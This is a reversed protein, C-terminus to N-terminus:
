GRQLAPVCRSAIRNQAVCATPWRFGSLVALSEGTCPISTSAVRASLGAGIRAEVFVDGGGHVVCPGFANQMVGFRRHACAACM